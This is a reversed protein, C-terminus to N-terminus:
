AGPGAPALKLQDSNTRVSLWLCFDERGSLAGDCGENRQVRIGDVQPTMNDSLSYVYIQSRYFSPFMHFLKKVVIRQVGAIM